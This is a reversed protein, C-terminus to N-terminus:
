EKVRKKHLEIGKEEPAVVADVGAGTWLRLWAVARGVLLTSDNIPKDESQGGDV